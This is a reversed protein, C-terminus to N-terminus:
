PGLSMYEGAGSTASFRVVGQCGDTESGLRVKLTIEDVWLSQLVAGHRAVFEGLFSELLRFLDMAAIEALATLNLFLRGESGSAKPSLKACDMEHVAALLLEELRSAWSNSVPHFGIRSHSVSRVHVVKAKDNSTLFVESIPDVSTVAPMRELHNASESLREVEMLCPLAPSLDRLSPVEAWSARKAFFAYRPEDGNSGLTTAQPLTWGTLPQPVIGHRGAAHKPLTLLVETVGLASLKAEVQRLLQHVEGIMQSFREENGAVTMAEDGLLILHLRGAKPAEGQVHQRLLEGQLYSKLAAYDPLVKAIGQWVTMAKGNPIGPHRFKWRAELTEQLEVWEGGLDRTEPRLTPRRDEKRELRISSEKSVGFARYSRRLLVELAKLQLDKQSLAHMLLNGGAAHPTSTVLKGPDTALGLELAKFRQTWPEGTVKQCLRRAALLVPAYISTNPLESLETLFDSLKNRRHARHSRHKTSQPFFCRLM